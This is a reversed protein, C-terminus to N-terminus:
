FFYICFYNKYMDTDYGNIYNNINSSGDTDM